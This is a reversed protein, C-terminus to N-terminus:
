EAGSSKSFVNILLRQQNVANMIESKRKSYQKSDQGPDNFADGIISKLGDLDTKDLRFRVAVEYVKRAFVQNLYGQDKMKNSVKQAISAIGNTGLDALMSVRFFQRPMPEVDTGIGDELQTRLKETCLFTTAMKAIAIPMYLTLRRAVEGVPLTDSLSSRYTVGNFIVRRNKALETVIGLSNVTFRTWGDLAGALFRKKESDTILEM